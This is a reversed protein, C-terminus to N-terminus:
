TPPWTQAKTPTRYGVLAPNKHTTAARNQQPMRGLAFVTTRHRYAGQSFIREAILPGITPATTAVTGRQRDNSSSYRWEVSTRKPDFASMSYGAASTRKVGLLPCQRFVTPHGSQALLPCPAGVLNNTLTRKADLRQRPASMTRSGLLPTKPNPRQLLIAHGVVIIAGLLFCIFLACSNLRSYVKDM